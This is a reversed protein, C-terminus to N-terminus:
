KRRRLSSPADCGREYKAAWTLPVDLPPKAAAKRTSWSSSCVDGYGVSEARSNGVLQVLLDPFCSREPIAGCRPHGAESANIPDSYLQLGRPESFLTIQVRSLIILSCM